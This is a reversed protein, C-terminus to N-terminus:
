KRKQMGSIPSDSMDGSRTAAAASVDGVASFEDQDTPVDGAPDVSVAAREDQLVSYVYSALAASVSVGQAKCHDRFSDAVARPLKCGIVSYHINDYKRATEKRKESWEKKAM